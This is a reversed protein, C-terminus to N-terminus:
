RWVRFIFAYPKPAFALHLQKHEIITIKGRLVYGNLKNSLEKNNMMSEVKIM